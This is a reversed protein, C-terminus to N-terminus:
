RGAPGGALSAPGRPALAVMLDTAIGNNIGWIAAQTRNRANIKKLVGKLHVKVTSVSINLRSAIVKNSQGNILCALIQQERASLGHVQDVIEPGDTVVMRNNVLIDALDTPFVKEGMAVLRLSQQLADASMDKLLYGDAGATLMRALLDIAIKDTLVVIRVQPALSRIKQIGEPLSRQKDQADLLILGPKQTALLRVAEELSAAEHDVSFPSDALIRRLGERFLKSRDILLVSIKGALM